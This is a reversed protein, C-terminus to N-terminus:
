VADHCGGAVQIGSYAANAHGGRRTSRFGGTSVNKWFRQETSSSRRQQPAPWLGEEKKFMGSHFIIGTHMWCLLDHAGLDFRRRQFSRYLRQERGPVAQYTNKTIPRPGHYEKHYMLQVKASSRPRRCASRLNSEIIPIPVKPKPKM